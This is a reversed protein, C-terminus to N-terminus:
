KKVYKSERKGIYRCKDDQKKYPVKECCIYLAILVYLYKLTQLSDAVYLHISYGFAGVFIMRILASRTRVIDKLMSFGYYLLFFIYSLMGPYSYRVFDAIYFSDISKVVRGNIAAKFGRSRGIGVLPNLWDQDFVDKLLERYAASQRLQTINAGYNVSITTKFFADILSTVQLMVYRGIFTPRLLIVMVVAIVIGSITYFINKRRVASDSFLLMLVFTIAMMGLSSRSGTLFINVMIGFLLLPRRYVNFTKKEVDYGAFPMATMLLLGYGLSHGASSMIRYHGARIYRGTYIGPLNCLFSFPSVKIVAEFLGLITLLYIFGLFLKVARDVGITDRIVYIMLYLELFEVFPNLFANADARIVMTYTTVFLYPLIVLSLKEKKIIEAFAHSRGYDSLIFVLLILVFIRVVTFDFVPIPIGFYQPMVYLAFLFLVACKEFAEREKPMKLYKSTSNDITRIAANM